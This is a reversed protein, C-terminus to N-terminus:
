ERDNPNKLGSIAWWLYAVLGWVGVGSLNSPPSHKFLVSTLYFAAWGASLATLVVYGWTKSIPPWRSSLVALLGSFIFVLGWWEFPWWTLAVSLAVARAHTPETTIFSIGIGIYVLGAILLVQSHRQWPRMGWWSNGRRLNM